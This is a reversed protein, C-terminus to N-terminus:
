ARRSGSFDTHVFSLVSIPFASYRWWFWFNWLHGRFLLFGHGCSYCSLSTASTQYWMFYHVLHGPRHVGSGSFPNISLGVTIVHFVVAIAIPSGRYLAHLSVPSLFLSPLVLSGIARADPAVLLSLSCSLPGPVIGAFSIGLSVLRLLCIPHSTVAAAVAELCSM